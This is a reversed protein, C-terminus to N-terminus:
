FKVMFLTIQFDLLTEKIKTFSIQSLELNNIDKSKSFTGSQKDNIYTM